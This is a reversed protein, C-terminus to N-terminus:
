APHAFVWVVAVGCLFTSSAKLLPSDRFVAAGYYRYRAFATLAYRGFHRTVSGTARAGAYGGAAHYRSRGPIAYAPPVNFFFGNEGRTRWVPGVGLTLQYRSAPRSQWEVFPGGGAGVTDVHANPLIAIRFRSHVGVFTQLDFPHWRLRYLVEPGAALTAPLQPMGRRADPTGAPTPPSANAAVGFRWRSQASPRIRLRNRKLHLLRTRYSIDPYPYVFFSESDAGPYAPAAFAAVGMGIQWIGRAGWAPAAM